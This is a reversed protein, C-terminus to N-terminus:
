SPTEWLVRDNVRPYIFHREDFQRLGPLTFAMPSTYDLWAEAMVLGENAILLNAPVAVPSGPALAAIGAGVSWDVRPVGNGDVVIATVRQTLPMAEFPELMARSATLINAVTAADITGAHSALEATAAASLSLKRNAMMALSVEITGVYLGVLVPAVLAFELAAVGGQASTLLRRLSRWM